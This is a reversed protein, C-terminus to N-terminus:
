REMEVMEINTQTELAVVVAPDEVLVLIATAEQPKVLDAAVQNFEGITVGIKMYFAAMEAASIQKHHM